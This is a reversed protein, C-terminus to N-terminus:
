RVERDKTEQILDAVSQGHPTNTRVALYHGRPFWNRTKPIPREQLVEMIEDADHPWDVVGIWKCERCAFQTEKPKLELAGGCMQPCDAIWRGHNVYAQAQAPVYLSM